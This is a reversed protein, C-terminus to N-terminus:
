ECMVCRFVNPFSLMQWSPRGYSTNYPTWKGNLNDAFLKTVVCDSSSSSNSNNSYTWNYDVSIVTNDLAINASEAAFIYWVNETIHFHGIKHFLEENITGYIEDDCNAVGSM